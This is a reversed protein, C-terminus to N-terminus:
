IRRGITPLVSILWQNGTPLQGGCYNADVYVTPVSLYELRRGESHGNISCIANPRPRPDFRGGQRYKWLCLLSVLVRERCPVTSANGLWESWVARAAQRFIGPWSVPAHVATLKKWIYYFFIIQFLKKRRPTNIYPHTVKPGWPWHTHRDTREHATM